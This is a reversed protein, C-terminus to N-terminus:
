VAQENYEVKFRCLFVFLINEVAFFMCFLETKISNM